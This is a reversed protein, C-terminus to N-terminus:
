GLRVELGEHKELYRSPGPLPSQEGSITGILTSSLEVRREADGRWRILPAMKSSTVAIAGGSFGAVRGGIVNPFFGFVSADQDTSNGRIV